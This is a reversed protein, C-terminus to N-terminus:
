PKEEEPSAATPGVMDSGEVYASLRTRLSHKARFLLSEVAPVSAKLVDAIQQYSLGEYRQLIVALRQNGPLASVAARVERKLENSRAQDEPLATPDLISEPLGESAASTSRKRKRIEDFCANATVRYLWTSFAADPRYTKPSTYIRVFVEQAVDQAADKDGLFHYATNLVRARYHEFLAAFASEDGRQFALMLQADPDEMHKM